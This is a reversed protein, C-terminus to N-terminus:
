SKINRKKKQSHWMAHPIKTGRGPILVTGGATSDCHGLRQVELSTGMKLNRCM